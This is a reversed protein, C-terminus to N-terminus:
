LITDLEPMRGWLLIRQFLLQVHDATLQGFKRNTMSVTLGTDAHEPYASLRTWLLIVNGSSIVRQAYM